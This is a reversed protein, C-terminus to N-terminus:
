RRRPTTRAPNHLIQSVRHGTNRWGRALEVGGALLVVGCLAPHAAAALLSGTALLLLLNRRARRRVRVQVYGVPHGSTVLEGLVLTSGILRADYPEWGTAPLVRMGTRRLEAVLAAALDARPRDEPLLVVGRGLDEAPGPLAQPPLDRRAPERHRLRGWTRALPQLLHMAAVGLRFRVQWGRAQRPPRVSAADIGALVV